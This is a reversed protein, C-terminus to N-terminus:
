PRRGPGNVKERLNSADAYVQGIQDILRRLGDDIPTHSDTMHQKQLRGDRTRHAVRALLSVGTVLGAGSLLGTLYDTSIAVLAGIGTASSADADRRNWVLWTAAVSGAILCVAFLVTGGARGNGLRAKDGTSMGSITLEGHVLDCESIGRTRETVKDSKPPFLIDTNVPSM